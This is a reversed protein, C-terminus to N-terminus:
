HAILPPQAKGTLSVSVKDHVHLEGQEDHLANQGFYVKNKWKRLRNLTALPEKDKQATEPDISPVACRSCPKPLRFGIDGIRIQRWLDEAYPECDAIVLNPRFRAMSVELGMAQNLANLSAKSIILFPFGDNFNVKDTARAYGPDVARITEDPQYVLRCPTKLFYAFWEDLEKSVCRGICEDKWITTLLEEGEEADNLPLSVNEMDPASLVLRDGEIATKILAMRPLRRQSLFLNEDDVLMWKRDYRLGKATVQWDNVEIGALSKVPYVHINSLFPQM